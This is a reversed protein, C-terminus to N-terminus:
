PRTHDSALALRTAERGLRLGEQMQSADFDLPGFPLEQAPGVRLVPVGSLVEERDLLGVMSDIREGVSRVARRLPQEVPPTCSLAIVGALDDAFDSEDLWATPNIDVMCGDAFKETSDSFVQVAPFMGPISASAVLARRLTAADHGDCTSVLEAEGDVLSVILAGFEIPKRKRVAAQRLSRWDATTMHRRVVEELGWGKDGSWTRFACAAVGMWGPLPVGALQGPSIQVWTEALRELPELSQRAAALALQSGVLAGGSSGYIVRVRNLLGPVAALELAQGVLTIARAGGGALAIALPGTPPLHQLM